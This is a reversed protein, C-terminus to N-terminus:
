ERSPTEDRIRHRVSRFSRSGTRMSALLDSRPAGTRPVGLRILERRVPEIALAAAMDWRGFARCQRRLRDERRKESIMLLTTQEPTEARYKAYGDSEAMAGVGKWWYDVRDVFGESRFVVQLDPSEFGSWVIVARGVSEGPSESRSDVMGFLLDLLRRGRRNQQGAGIKVLQDATAMGGQFPSIAADGIALGFPAPLVRMLDLATHAPDTMALGDRMVVDRGDASTHVFVDGSERSKSRGEDYVHIRRPEGFLPLGLLAAASEYAFVATQNVLAYAHVRALYREWPMLRDWGARPTYIGARVRHYRAGDRLIRSGSFTDAARILEVPSRRVSDSATTAAMGSYEREHCGIKGTQV